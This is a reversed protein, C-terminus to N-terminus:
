LVGHRKWVEALTAGALLDARARGEDRAKGEVISVVDDVAAAPVVVVGDEDGVVVDGPAV